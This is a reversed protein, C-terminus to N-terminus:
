GRESRCPAGAETPYTPSHIAPQIRCQPCGAASVSDKALMTGVRAHKGIDKLFTLFSMSGFWDLNNVM